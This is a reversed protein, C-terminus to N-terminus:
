EAIEFNDVGALHLVLVSQFTTPLKEIARYLQIRQYHRELEASPGARSDVLLEPPDAIELGRRRRHERELYLNALRLRAVDFAFTQVSANSKGRYRALALWVEGLLDRADM